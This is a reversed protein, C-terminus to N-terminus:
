RTVFRKLRHGVEDRDIYPTCNPLQQQKYNAVYANYQSVSQVPYHPMIPQAANYQSYAQVHPPAQMENLPTLTPFSTEAAQIAGAPISPRREAKVPESSTIETKERQYANLGVMSIMSVLTLCLIIKIKKRSPVNADTSNSCGCPCEGSSHGLSAQPANEPGFSFDERLEPPTPFM